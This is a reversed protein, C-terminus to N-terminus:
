TYSPWLYFKNTVTTNPSFPGPKGYIDAIHMGCFEITHKFISESLNNDCAKLINNRQLSPPDHNMYTAQKTRIDMLKAAAWYLQLNQRLLKLLGSLFLSISMNEQYYRNKCKDIEKTLQVYFSDDFVIDEDCASIKQLISDKLLVDDECAKAYTQIYSRLEYFSWRDPAITIYFGEEFYAFEEMKNKDTQPIESCVINQNGLFGKLDQLHEKKGKYFVAIKVYKKDQGSKLYTM